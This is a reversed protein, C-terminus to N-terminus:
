EDVTVADTVPDLVRVIDDKIAAWLVPGADKGPRVTLYPDSHHVTVGEVINGLNDLVHEGVVTLTALFPARVRTVVEVESPHLQDCWEILKAEDTVRVSSRGLTMAVTGVVSGDVAVRDTRGPPMSALMARARGEAEKVRKGLDALLLVRQRAEEETM